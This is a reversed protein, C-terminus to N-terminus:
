KTYKVEDNILIKAFYFMNKNVYELNRKYTLIEFVLTANYMKIYCCVKHLLKYGYDYFGYGTIRLPRRLIELLFQKIQLYIIVYKSNYKKKFSYDLVYNNNVNEQM